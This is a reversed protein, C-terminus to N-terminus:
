RAAPVFSTLAIVAFLLGPRIGCVGAARRVRFMKLAKVNLAKVCLCLRIAPDKVRDDHKVSDDHKVIDNTVSRDDLLNLRVGQHLYSASVLGCLLSVEFETSEGFRRTGALRPM